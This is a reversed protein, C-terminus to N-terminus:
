KRGGNKVSYFNISDDLRAIEEQPIVTKKEQYRGIEIQRRLGQLWIVVVGGPAMGVIIEKYNEKRPEPNDNMSPIYYGENFLKLMKDYDIETDIEYMCDEAYSVWM